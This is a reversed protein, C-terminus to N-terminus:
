KRLEPVNKELIEMSEKNKREWEKLATRTMAENAASIQAIPVKAKMAQNVPVKNDSIATPQKLLVHTQRPKIVADNIFNPIMKIVIFLFLLPIAVRFIIESLSKPSRKRKRNWKSPSNGTKSNKGYNWSASGSDDATKHEVEERWPTDDLVRMGAIFDINEGLRKRLTIGDILEIHPHKAGASLAATTYEGSTVFIAADAKETEMLGILQHVDNHPVQKANWHKCQVIIYKDDRYLKLDIGGDYKNNKGATGVHEVRFGQKLYYEALLLEFKDWPIKSLNDNWRSKNNKLGM